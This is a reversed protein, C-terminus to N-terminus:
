SLVAAVAIRLALYRQVLKPPNEKWNSVATPTLGIHRAFDAKYQFGALKLTEKFTM